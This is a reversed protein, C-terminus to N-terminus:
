EGKLQEAIKESGIMAKGITEYEKENGVKAVSMQWDSFNIILRDAFDSIAKSRIERDHGDLKKILADYEEQSIQGKHVFKSLQSKLSLPM